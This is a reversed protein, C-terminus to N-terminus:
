KQYAIEIKSKTNGPIGPMAGMPSVMVHPTTAYIKMDRMPDYDKQKSKIFLIGDDVKIKSFGKLKKQYYAVIKSADDPSAMTLAPLTGEYMEGMMNYIMQAGQSGSFHSMVTANKYMPLTVDDVPMMQAQQQLAQNFMAMGEQPDMPPADASNSDGCANLKSSSIGASKILNKTMCDGHANMTTDNMGSMEKPFLSDCKTMATEVSSACKKKNIGICSLFAQDDCSSMFQKKMMNKMPAMDGSHAVFSACSLTIIFAIRYINKM